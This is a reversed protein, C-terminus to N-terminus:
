SDNANAQMLALQASNRGGFGMRSNGGSMPGIFALKVVPREAAQAPLEASGAVAGLGLGLAM